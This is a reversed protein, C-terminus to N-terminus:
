YKRILGDDGATWLTGDVVKVARVADCDYGVLEEVVQPGEPRVSAVYPLGDSSAVAIRVEGTGEPVFVMEEISAGNRQFSFLPVALQRTDYITVIGSRSGVALIHDPPSYAISELPSKSTSPPESHFFSSKSGLDFAEFSGNQLACFVAKDSTEIERSDISMPISTTVDGDPPRYIVPEFDRNGLSMKYVPSYSKSGMARIQSGSGVDWLRITGDKACSLVNKGRSIIASDTVARSHARLNRPISLDEASIISLSFDNSTTLIVKSSPFFRLSLISSLHPKSKRPQDSITLSGVHINGDDDGTAYLSSDPAVDFATIPSLQQNTDGVVRRPVRLRTTPIELSACSV